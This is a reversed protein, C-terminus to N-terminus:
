RSDEVADPVSASSQREVTSHGNEKVKLNIDLTPETASPKIEADESKIQEFWGLQNLRQISLDWRTADFIEGERLLLERRFIDDSKTTNGTLTIHGVRFQRDEDVNITLNVLKKGYPIVAVGATRRPLHLPTDADLPLNIRVEGNFSRVDGIAAGPPVRRTEDVHIRKCWLPQSRESQIDRIRRGAVIHVNDTMAEPIMPRRLM